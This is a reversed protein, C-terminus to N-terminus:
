TNPAAFKFRTPDDTNKLEYMTKDALELLAEASNAHDPYLTVGVSAGIKVKVGDIDFIENLSQNLKECIGTVSAQDIIDPMIIVFEDGGFRAVTDSARVCKKMNETIHQLAQDGAKHGLRDNVQKFDDLDVFMIGVKTNNRKARILEHDLRDRMLNRNPLGTLPDHGAMHLAKEEARKRETVDHFVLLLKADNDIEILDGNFVCDRAEGTKTVLVGEFDRVVKDRKLIEILKIRQNFNQWLGFEAVSKGIVDEKDYGTTACWHDNVDFIVGDGINAISISAPSSNFAKAFREESQLLAKQSQKRATIDTYSTVFGGEALPKGRIELLTGDPLSREFVHPEFLKAKEVRERVLEDIDGPGYDGRKAIFRVFSEFTDGLKFRDQPLNQLEMFRQNYAVLNLDADVMTIGDEINALTTELVRTKIALQEQHVLFQWLLWALGASTILAFILAIKSTTSSFEELALATPMLSISWTRNAVKITRQVTLPNDLEVKGQNFVPIDDDVIQYHYNLALKNELAAEVLPGIRFVLNVFGETRTDTGLPIYAAFGMGSQALEIPSTAQIKGLKEAQTLVSGAIPHKKLDLGIAGQNGKNPTVWRIVGNSDAWNIAQFDPYLQHFSLAQSTFQEPTNIHQKGWEHRLHKGIAFRNSIFSELRHAIQEAVMSGTFRANDIRGADNLQRIWMVSLALIM